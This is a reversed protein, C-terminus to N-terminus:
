ISDPSCLALTNTAGPAQPFQGAVTEKGTCRFIQEEGKRVASFFRLLETASGYEQSLPHTFDLFSQQYALQLMKNMVDVHEHEGGPDHVSNCPMGPM